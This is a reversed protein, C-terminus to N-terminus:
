GGQDDYHAFRQISVTHRGRRLSQERHFVLGQTLIQQFMKAQSRHPPAITSVPQAEILKGHALTTNVSYPGLYVHVLSKQDATAVFANSIFKPWGQPHNVTCCSPVYPLEPDANEAISCGYENVPM